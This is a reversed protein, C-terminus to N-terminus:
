GMKKHNYLLLAVGEKTTARKYEVEGWPTGDRNRGCDCWPCVDTGGIVFQNKVSEVSPDDYKIEVTYRSGNKEYLTLIKM